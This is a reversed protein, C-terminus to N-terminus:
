VPLPEEGRKAWLANLEDLQMEWTMEIVEGPLQELIQGTDYAGKPVKYKQSQKDLREIDPNYAGNVQAHGELLSKAALAYEGSYMDKFV